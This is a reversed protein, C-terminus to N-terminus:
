FHVQDGPSGSHESGSAHLEPLVEKHRLVAGSMEM